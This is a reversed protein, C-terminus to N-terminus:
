GCFLRVRYICQVRFLLYEAATDWLRDIDPDATDFTIVLQKVEGSLLRKKEIRELAVLVFLTGFTLSVAPVYLGAGVCM